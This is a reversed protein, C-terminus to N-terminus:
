RKTASDPEAVVNDNVIDSDPSEIPPGYVDEVVEIDPDGPPPGYVSEIPGAPKNNICSTVGLAAGITMLARAVWKKIRFNLTKM